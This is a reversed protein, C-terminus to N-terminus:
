VTGFRVSCKRASSFQPETVRTQCHIYPEFLVRASSFKVVPIGSALYITSHRVPPIYPERKTTELTLPVSDHPRIRQVTRNQVIAREPEV